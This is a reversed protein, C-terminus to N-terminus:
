HWLQQLAVLIHGEKCSAVKCLLTGGCIEHETATCCLSDSMSTRLTLGAHHRPWHEDATSRLTAQTPEASPGRRECLPQQAEPRDINPVRATAGQPAASHGEGARCTSAMSHGKGLGAHGEGHQTRGGARCTSAMSHAEGLGANVQWATSGDCSSCRAALLHTLCNPSPRHSPKCLVRSSPCRATMFSAFLSLPMSITFEDVLINSLFYHLFVGYPTCLADMDFCIKLINRRKLLSCCQKHTYISCRMDALIPPQMKMATEAREVDRREAAEVVSRDYNYGFERSFVELLPGTDRKNGNQHLILPSGSWAGTPSV